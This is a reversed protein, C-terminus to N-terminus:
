HGYRARILLFVGGILALDALNFCFNTGPLRIYDIVRTWLVGDIWNSLVGMLALWAWAAQTKRIKFALWLMVAVVLALGFRDSYFLTDNNGRFTLVGYDGHIRWIYLACLKFIQDIVLLLTSAIWM